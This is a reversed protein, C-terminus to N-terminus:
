AGSFSACGELGGRHGWDSRWGPWELHSRPGSSERSDEAGWREGRVKDGALADRRSKDVWARGLTM